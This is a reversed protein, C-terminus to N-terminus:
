RIYIVVDHVSIKLDLATFEVVFVNVYFVGIKENNRSFFVGSRESYIEILCSLRVFFGHIVPFTLRPILVTDDSLIM